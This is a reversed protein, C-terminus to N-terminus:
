LKPLLCSTNTFDDKPYPLTFIFTISIPMTNFSGPAHCAERFSLLLSKMYLTPLLSYVSHQAVPHESHYLKSIHSILHSHFFDTILFDMSPGLYLSSVKLLPLQLSLSPHM